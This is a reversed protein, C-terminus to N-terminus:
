FSATVALGAVFHYSTDDRGTAEYARAAARLRRDFVYDMYAVYGSLAFGAGINWVLEGKVCLDMLGGHDDALGYGRTRQTNGLGQAVSPRFALVPDDNEGAGDILPFTHGLELNVYTGNDRDIDREFALTPEIWLDPLAVAFMVFQTDDGPEGTGGGMGRPHYEYMYGLALEVTTPLLGCDEPSFAHSLSVGSDLEMYRGARNSYGAKRGYKTVDFLAAIGFTVWDFFTVAASPTVIPDKNDVLGYSMFKSDFTPGFEASVVAAEAFTVGEEEPRAAAGGEASQANEALLHGGLAAACALTLIHKTNM